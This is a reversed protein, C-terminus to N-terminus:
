DESATGARRPTPAARRAAITRGEGDTDWLGLTGQGTEDPELTVAPVGDRNFIRVTPGSPRSAIAVQVRGEADHTYIQGDNAATATLTVLPTAGASTTVQGRGGVGASLTVAPGGTDGFSEVRGSGDSAVQLRVAPRGARAGPGPEGPSGAAAITLQGGDQTALADMVRVGSADFVQLAGGSRTAGATFAAQGTETRTVVLVGGHQGAGALMITRGLKDKVGLTGGEENSGLALRVTGIDDVIELRRTQIVDTPASGEDGAGGLMLGGGLLSAGVLMGSVFPTPRAPM